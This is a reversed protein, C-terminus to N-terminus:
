PASEPTSTAPASLSGTACECGAQPRLTPWTAAAGISAALLALLGVASRLARSLEQEYPTSM